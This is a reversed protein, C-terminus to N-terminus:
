KFDSIDEDDNPMRQSKVKMREVVSVPLAYAPDIQGFAAFETDTSNAAGYGAACRDLLLLGSVGFFTHFIDSMNGPRDSIGGDDADQCRLIYDALRERDIWSVQIIFWKCNYM